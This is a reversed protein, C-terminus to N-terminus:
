VGFGGKGLNDANCGSSLLFVFGHLSVELLELIVILKLRPNAAVGM